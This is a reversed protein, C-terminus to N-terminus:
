VKNFRAYEKYHKKAATNYAKAADRENSFYGLFQKSRNPCIYAEWMRKKTSWSVGKYKSTGKRSKEANLLNERHSCVRINFRSNNLGNGSIHDAQQKDGPLLNLIFRHMLSFPNDSTPNRVAYWKGHSTCAHWKYKNVREFDRDDVLAIKEKTLKVEKM